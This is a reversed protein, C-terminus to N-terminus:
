LVHELRNACRLADAGAARRGPEASYASRAEANGDHRVDILDMGNTRRRHSRRCRRCASANGCLAHPPRDAIRRAIRGAICGSRPGPRHRRGGRDGRRRRAAGAHSGSYVSGDAARPRRTRDARAGGGATRARRHAGLPRAAIRALNRFDIRGGIGGACRFRRPWSNDCGDGRRPASASAGSPAISDWLCSVAHWEEDELKSEVPQSPM